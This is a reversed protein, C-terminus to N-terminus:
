EVIVTNLAHVGKVLKNSKLKNTQKIERDREKHIRVAAVTSEKGVFHM